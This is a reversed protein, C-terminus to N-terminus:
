MHNILLYYQCSPENKRRRKRRETSFVFTGRVTCSKSPCYIYTHFLSLLRVRSLLCFCHFCLRIFHVFKWFVVFCIFYVFTQKLTEHKKKTWINFVVKSILLILPFGNLLLLEIQNFLTNSHAVSHALSHIEKYKWHADFEKSYWHKFNYKKEVCFSM